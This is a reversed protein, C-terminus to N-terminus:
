FIYFYIVYFYNKGESYLCKRYSSIYTVPKNTEYLYIHLQEGTVHIQFYTKVVKNYGNAGWGREGWDEINEISKTENKGDM